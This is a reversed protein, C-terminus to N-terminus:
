RCRVYTKDAIGRESVVLRDGRVTFTFTHRQRDGEVTCRAKATWPSSANRTMALQCHSEHQDLSTNTLVMPANQSDQGLRCASKQTAWTGVFDPAAAAPAVSAALLTGFIGILTLTRATM